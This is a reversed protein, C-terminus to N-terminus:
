LYSIVTILLYNDPIHLILTLTPYVNAKKKEIKDLYLGRLVVRLIEKREEENDELKTRNRGQTSRKKRRDVNCRDEEKVEPFGKRQLRRQKICEENIEIESIGAKIEKFWTM